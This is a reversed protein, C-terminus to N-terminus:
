LTIWNYIFQMALQNVQGQFVPQRNVVKCYFSVLLRKESLIRLHM